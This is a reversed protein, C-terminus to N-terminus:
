SLDASGHNLKFWEDASNAPEDSTVSAEISRQAGEIRREVMKSEIREDDQMLGTMIKRGVDGMFVRFLPDEVSMHYHIVSACHLSQVFDDVDSDRSFLPHREAVIFHLVHNSASSFGGAYNALDAALVARVPVSDSAQEAQSRLLALMETFHAVLLIGAANGKAQAEEVAEAIGRLRAQHTLWIYSNRKVLEPERKGFLFDLLGM